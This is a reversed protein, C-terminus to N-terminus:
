GQYSSAQKHVHTAQAIMQVGGSVTDVDDDHRGRPFATAERIFDNNWVGRVLKVKKDKAKMQWPRAREVKDGLPKVKTIKKNALAPNRMFQKMVLKQFAVDEVGWVTGVEKESCMATECIPLFEELNRIKIRDRLFLTGGTDMAVAITSNFDSTKSEGLALDVYRYWTLKDPANEVVGFDTDDLFEGVALRPSQNYQAEFEFDGINARLSKLMAATHKEIWLPDGAARGLPDGGMSMYIGRLLNEKFQEETKPYDDVSLAEARLNLVDWQDAEPDSAMAKLLEGAIDEQDWRTMVIIVAGHDELRTYATSRYWEWVLDRRVKSSAEDRSKFPDDIIFLNAGFGTIAGGVGAAIMGGNHEKLDWAAASRSDPDLMVPESASALSGFVQSYEESEIIDRVERSHKSALDAGYSTLIIRLDSNKGMVWAPFKRSATQSKWYRPPMFIMLRGIGEKGNSLIFKSVEQLKATMLRIHAADGPYKRDTFKCFTLFDREALLRNKVEERIASKSNAM